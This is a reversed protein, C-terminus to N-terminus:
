GGIGRADCAEDTVFLAEADNFEGTVVADIQHSRRLRHALFEKAGM